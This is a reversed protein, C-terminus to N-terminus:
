LARFILFVAGSLVGLLVFGTMFWQFGDMHKQRADLVVYLGGLALATLLGAPAVVFLLFMVLFSGGERLPTGRHGPRDM